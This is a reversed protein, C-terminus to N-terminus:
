SITTNTSRFALFVGLRRPQDAPVKEDGGSSTIEVQDEAWEVPKTQELKAAVDKVLSKSVTNLRKAHLAPSDLSKLPETSAIVKIM